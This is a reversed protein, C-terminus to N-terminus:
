HVLYTEAIRTPCSVLHWKKRRWDYKTFSAARTATESIHAAAVVGLRRSITTRGDGAPVTMCIPRVIRGSRQYLGLNAQLLASEVEDVVRPLEADILCISTNGPRM